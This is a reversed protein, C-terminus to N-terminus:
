DLHQIAEYMTFNEWPRKFHSLNEGVKVETTGHLDLAIREVMEEVLCEDDM